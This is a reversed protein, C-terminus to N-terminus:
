QRFKEMFLSFIIKDFLEPDINLLHGDKIEVYKTDNEDDNNSIYLYVKNDYDVQEVVIYTKGDEMTFKKDTYDM